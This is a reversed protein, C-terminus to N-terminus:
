CPNLIGLGVALSHVNWTGPLIGQVQYIYVKILGLWRPQSWQCNFFIWTGHGSSPEWIYVKDGPETRTKSWSIKPRSMVKGRAGTRIYINKFIYIYLLYGPGVDNSRNVPRGLKGYRFSSCILNWNYHLLNNLINISARTLTRYSSGLGRVQGQDIYLDIIWSVHLPSPHM